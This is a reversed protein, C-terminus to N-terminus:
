GGNADVTNRFLLVCRDFQVMSGAVSNCYDGVLRVVDSMPDPNSTDQCVNFLDNKFTGFAANDLLGDASLASAYQLIVTTLPFCTSNAPPVGPTGPAGGLPSGVLAETSAVGYQVSRLDTLFPDRAFAEALADQLGDDRVLGSMIPPPAITDYLADVVPDPHTESSTALESLYVDMKGAFYQLEIARMANTRAGVAETGELAGHRIAGITGRVALTTSPTVVTFDNTLGIRDVKFDVRGRDLGVVTRLTAGDQVFEPLKVRTSSDVLLTSNKGVRLSISSRLGTRITVGAALIQDPKAATWPPRGDASWQVRGAVKMVVAELVKVQGAPLPQEAARAAEAAEQMAARVAPATLTAAVDASSPAAALALTMAMAPVISPRNIM